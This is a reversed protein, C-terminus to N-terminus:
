TLWGVRSRYRFRYVLSLLFKNVVPYIVDSETGKFVTLKGKSDYYDKLPM